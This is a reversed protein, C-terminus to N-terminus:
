RTWAKVALTLLGWMELALVGGEGTYDLEGQFGLKQEGNQVGPISSASTSCKRPAQRAEESARRCKGSSGISRPLRPPAAPFDM